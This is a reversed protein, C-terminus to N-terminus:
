DDFSTFSWLLRASVGKAEFAFVGSPPFSCSDGTMHYALEPMQPLHGVILLTKEMHGDEILAKLIESGPIKNSLPGYPVVKPPTKLVQAVEEATQRARLVPSVLLLAPAEGKENIRAASKRTDKRGKDSLPRDCDRQVNAELMGPSEGHRM